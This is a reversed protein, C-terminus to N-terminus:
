SWLAIKIWFYYSFRPVMGMLCKNKLLVLSNLAQAQLSSTWNIKCIVQDTHWSKMETGNSSSMEVTSLDTFYIEYFGLVQFM